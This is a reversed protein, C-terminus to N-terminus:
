RMQRITFQAQGVCNKLSKWLMWNYRKQVREEPLMEPNDPCEHNFAIHFERVKEFSDTLNM